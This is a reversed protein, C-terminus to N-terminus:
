KVYTPRSDSRWKVEFIFEKGEEIPVADFHTVLGHNELHANEFDWRIFDSGQESIHSDSNGHYWKNRFPHHSYFLNHMIQCSKLPMMLPANCIKQLGILVKRLGKLM